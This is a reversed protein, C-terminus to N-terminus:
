DGVTEASLIPRDVTGDEYVHPTALRELEKEAAMRNLEATRSEKQALDRNQLVKILGIFTTKGSEVEHIRQDRTSKLSKMVSEQRQVLTTYEMTKKEDKQAASNIDRNISLYIKQADEDLEAYSLGGLLDRRKKELEAVEMRVKHREILNRSKLIELKICDFVQMEESPLVENPKFQTMLKIYQEEFFKLEEASFENMICKYAESSKLEARITRKFDTTSSAGVGGTGTNTQKPPHSVTPQLNNKRIIKEVASARRGLKKAIDRIELKGANALIYVIDEKSLRGTKQVADATKQVADAPIRATDKEDGSNSAALNTKARKKSM